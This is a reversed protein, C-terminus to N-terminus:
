NLTPDSLFSFVMGGMGGYCWERNKHMKYNNLSTLKYKEMIFEREM